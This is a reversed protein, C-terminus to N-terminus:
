PSMVLTHHTSGILCTVQSKVYRRCCSQDCTRRGMQTYAKSCISLSDFHRTFASQEEVALVSAEPDVSFSLDWRYAKKTCDEPATGESVIRVTAGSDLDDLAVRVSDVPCADSMAQGSAHPLGLLATVELEASDVFMNRQGATDVAAKFANVKICLVSNGAAYVASNVLPL